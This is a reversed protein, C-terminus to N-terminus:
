KINVNYMDVLRNGKKQNEKRWLPRLNSLANIISLDTVGNKLFYDIPIIHDIDWHKRNEWNM